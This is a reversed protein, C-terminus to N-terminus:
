IAEDVLAAADSIRLEGSILKPLLTDRLKSIIEVQLDLEKRKVLSDSFINSAKKLLKTSPHLLPYELLYSIKMNPRTSSEGTIRDIYTRFEKTQFAQYVYIPNTNVRIRILGNNYVASLDELIIKSLGLISTRTILIDGKLLKFKEFNEATVNSFGWSAIDRNNSFDGIRACKIGTDYDVIPAKQIADAGTNSKEIFSSLPENVWGKPIWGMEETFEFENPFLNQIDPSDKKEIGKRQEARDLLEDPIPKGAALANDIVPDFDVFWSKFLAQAMAELTENMRRNLEIKDDLSGLIHAIAKQEQHSPMPVNVNELDSGRIGSQGAGQETISWIESRGQPSKFFYYLYESYVKKEDPRVRILHSEFVVPENDGLFIACKGAGSLVLSQRAFLLDNNRLESSDFEKKNVPVRDTPINFMRDFKFIEGMNIFKVGEGRVKKPKSLGNRSPILYLEKFKVVEWDNAM